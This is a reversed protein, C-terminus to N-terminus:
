SRQSDFVIYLVHRLKIVLEAGWDRITAVDIHLDRDWGRGRDRKGPCLTLGIVGQIDPLSVEAIRLPDNVSTKMAGSFPKRSTVKDM